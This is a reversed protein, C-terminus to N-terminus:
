VISVNCIPLHKMPPASRAGPRLAALEEDSWFTCDFILVNSSHIADHLEHTVMAVSPAVLAITGSLNDRFQFATSHPLQIARFTIGGNLSQFDASIKCWEIGCFQALICDLWALATRSE